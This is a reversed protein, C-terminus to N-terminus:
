TEDGVLVCYDHNAAAPSVARNRVGLQPRVRQGTAASANKRMRVTQWTSKDPPGGDSVNWEVCM